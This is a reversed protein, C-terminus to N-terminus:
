INASTLCEKKRIGRASPGAVGPRPVAALRERSRRSGSLSLRATSSGYTSNPHACRAGFQIDIKSKM